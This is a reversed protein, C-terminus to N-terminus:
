RAAECGPIDFVATLGCPSNLMKGGAHGVGPVDWVSHNPAGGDRAQMVAAYSHGCAYRYPGEAEAMCSKDLAPHNPNTDLTGLLYIVRRAVYAQELAAPSPETLYPPRDDMGFKWSNYGHCNAAIAPEPREKTFYAYSSPNAVVYRVGIGERLLLQDGKVAIAYRQVVQGGGSHGFVVVQQLNPFLKRDGLKALIADLAEFSSAASPALAPEGGQWGYLSWRLTEAPLKFAEVDSEILFQPAIMLAHEGADGAAAQASLAARFYDDANRLVGHLVLVARTVDPLPNSWDASLYLPFSAKGVAIRANAIEKVPKRDRETQAQTASAAPGHAAAVVLLAAAALWARHHM